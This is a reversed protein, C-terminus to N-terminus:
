EDMIEMEFETMMSSNVTGKSGDCDCFPDRGLVAPSTRSRAGIKDPGPEPEMELLRPDIGRSVFM